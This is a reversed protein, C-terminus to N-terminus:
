VLEWLLFSATSPLPQPHQCHQPAWSSPSVLMFQLRAWSPAPPNPSSKELAGVQRKWQHFCARSLTQALLRVAQRQQLQPSLM